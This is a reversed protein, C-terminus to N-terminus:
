VHAGHCRCLGAGRLLGGEWFPEKLLLRSLVQGTITKPGQLSTCSCAHGLAPLLSALDQMVALATWIM